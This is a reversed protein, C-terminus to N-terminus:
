SAPLVIQDNEARLAKWRVGGRSMTPNVYVKRYDKLVGHSNVVFLEGVHLDRSTYERIIALKQVYFRQKSTKVVIRGTEPKYYVSAEGEGKIHQFSAENAAKADELYELVATRDTAGVYEYTQGLFRKHTIFDDASAASATLAMMAAAIFTKM